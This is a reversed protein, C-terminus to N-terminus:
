PDEDMTTPVKTEADQDRFPGGRRFYECLDSQLVMERLKDRDVSQLDRFRVETGTKEEAMPLSLTCTVLYHDPAAPVSFSCIDSVEITSKPSPDRTVDSFNGCFPMSVDVPEKSQVLILDLTGGKIHTPGQVVNRWNFDQLLSLFQETQSDSGDEVHINFDGCIIAPEKAEGLRILLNEFEDLFTSYRGTTGPRYIVVIRTSTPATLLVELCEFSEFKLPFSRTKMCKKTVLAVGGGRGKRPLSTISFGIEKIEACLARDDAKMWTETLAMVSLSSNM